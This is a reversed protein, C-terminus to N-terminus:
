RNQQSELTDPLGGEGLFGIESYDIEVDANDKLSNILQNYKEKRKQALIRSIINNKVLSLDMVDGKNRKDILNVFHYGDKLRIMKWTGVKMASITGLLEPPIQSEEIYINSTSSNVFSVNKVERSIESFKKNGKLAREVTRSDSRIKVKIREYKYENELFQFYQSNRKYYDEIEDDTIELKREIELDLLKDIILEMQLNSLEEKIFPDEKLGRKIAEKYLLEREAWREVYDKMEDFGIKQSNEPDLVDNIMELTLVSNGVKAVPPSSPKKGSCFFLLLFIMISLRKMKDIGIDM